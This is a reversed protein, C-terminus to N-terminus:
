FHEKILERQEDSLKKPLSFVFDIFLDGYINDKILMGKGKIKQVKGIKLPGSVKFKLQTNDLFDLNYSFGLMAKKFSVKVECYLDNGKRKFLKHKDVNIHIILDGSDGGIIQNGEKKNIIMEGEAINIPIDIEKTCKEEILVGTYGNGQCNQCVQMRQAMMMENIKEIFVIKGMGECKTCMVNPVTPDVVNRVFEVVKTCGSYVEELTINIEQILSKGVRKNPQRNPPNMGGMLNEFLSGLVDMGDLGGGFLENLDFTNPNVETLKEYAENIEKFKSEAFEKQTPNKDPHWKMAKKKYAQKIVNEDSGPPIELIEYPDYVGM